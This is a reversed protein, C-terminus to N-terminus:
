AVAEKAVDQVPANRLLAAAITRLQMNTTGEYIKGVKADRYFKEAPHDPVFGNGGLTEVSQSAAREAVDAAVQKAMAAVTELERAATADDAMRVTDYLLARAAAIEAALAALPLHVGQYSAIPAGFQERRGAYSV